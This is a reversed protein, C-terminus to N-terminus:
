APIDRIEPKTVMADVHSKFAALKDAPKGAQRAIVADVTDKTVLSVPSVWWGTFLDEKGEAKLILARVALYGKLFHEPDVTAFNTGDKIAALGADNLDFAGTLYKNNHDRNIRALSALAADGADMFASADANAAVLNTWTTFNTTPDPASAVPGVVTFGTLGKEVAAKMGEARLDLTPVGPIPSAVVVSGKTVGKATLLRVAEAGLVEGAAMNDNGIYSTVNSGALPPVDVAVVPIGAAIADAMPRVMLDPALTMIALGDTATAMADQVMKVEAPGDNSTPALAQVDVGFEEGAAQAGQLM